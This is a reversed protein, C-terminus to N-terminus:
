VELAFGFVFILVGFFIQFGSLVAAAYGLAIYSGPIKKFLERNAVLWWISLPLVIPSLCGLLSMVFLGGALQRSRGAAATSDISDRYERRTMPKATEFTAECFRCKVASAKIAQNCNPCAKDEEWSGGGVHVPEEKEVVPTRSCGYVACGGNEAWCGAHFPTTCKDCDVLSEGTQFRSLCLACSRGDEGAGSPRPPLSVAAEGAVRGCAPCKVRRGPLAKLKRGCSCTLTEVM